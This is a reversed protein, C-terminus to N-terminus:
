RSSNKVVRVKKALSGNMEQEEEGIGAETIPKLVFIIVAIPPPFHSVQQANVAKAFPFSPDRGFMECNCLRLILRNVNRFLICLEEILPNLPELVSCRETLILAHMTRAKCAQKGQRDTQRDTQM